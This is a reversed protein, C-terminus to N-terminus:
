WYDECVTIGHNKVIGRSRFCEQYLICHKTVLFLRRLSLACRTMLSNTRCQLSISLGAEGICGSMIGSIVTWGDDNKPIPRTQYHSLTFYLNYLPHCANGFKQQRLTIDTTPQRQIKKTREGVKRESTSDEQYAYTAGKIWQPCYRRVLGNYTESFPVFGIKKEILCPM